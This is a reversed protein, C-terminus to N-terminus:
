AIRSDISRAPQASTSPAVATTWLTTWVKHLSPRAVPRCLPSPVPRPVVLFGVPRGAPLRPRAHPLPRGPSPDRRRPMVLPKARSATSCPRSASVPFSRRPLVSVARTPQSCSNDVPMFFTWRRTAAPTRSMTASPGEHIVLRAGRKVTPLGMRVTSLDAGAEPRM